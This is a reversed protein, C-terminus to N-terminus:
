TRLREIAQALAVYLKGMDSSLLTVGLPTGERSALVTRLMAEFDHIYRNVQERFEPENDYHRAIERADNNDLLRVARRTFVGRDGKLYSAWAVDTVENSLLKTVDIAASNLSELLLSVRRAFNDEDYEEREAKAEALRQEVQATTDAITLMQRMLRDSARHAAAVAASSAEELEGLRARLRDDLAKELAEGSADALAQAAQPIVQELATRAKDSAQHATDRVRLLAEVLRPAASDAFGQTAQSIEAVLASLAEAQGNSETLHTSVSQEVAALGTRQEAVLAALAAAADRTRESPAVLADVEGGLPALAARTDAIRADLRRISEPMTEDIERANSELAVLLDEAKAKLSDALSGGQELTKAMEEAHGRLSGISDALKLTRATGTEDLQSLRAEVGDIGREISQIVAGGAERQQALQEAIRGMTAEIAEIREAMADIAGSGARGIDSQGAAIMARMAEAQGSIDRSAEAITERAAVLTQEVMAAAEGAATDIQNGAAVSTSEMRALHASLRQAAGGAVEDAERGRAILAAVQAELTQAADHAKQGAEQIGTAMGRTQNLAKPLSALLVSMDARAATAAQLLRQAHADISATEHAVGNSIAALREAAVNGQQLMRDAQETLADRNEDLRQALRVVLNDLSQAEARMQAAARAFRSAEAMGSRQFALWILAILALPASLVALWEAIVPPQPDARLLPLSSWIVFGTWALGLLIAAGLALRAPWIGAPEADDFGIDPVAVEEPQTPAAQQAAARGGHLDIIQYGGTM